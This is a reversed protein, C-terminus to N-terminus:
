GPANTGVYTLTGGICMSPSEDRMASPRHSDDTRERSKEEENFFPFSSCAVVLFLSFLLVFINHAPYPITFYYYILTEKYFLIFDLHKKVQAISKM